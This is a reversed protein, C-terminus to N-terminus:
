ETTDAFVSKNKLIYEAASVVTFIVSLWIFALSVVGFLTGGIDALLLVIMVMQCITKIKATTSAAIVVNDLAAALKLGTIVFERSIILIVVIASLDGVSSLYILAACVLMKDALPDMLKGFNTIMNHNRAIYGDLADTLAAVVFIAAAVQRAYPVIDLELVLIFVPIMFIRSMTLKNALNM